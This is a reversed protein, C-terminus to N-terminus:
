WHGEWAWFPQPWPCRKPHNIKEVQSPKSEALHCEGPHTWPPTVSPFHDGAAPVKRCPNIGLSTWPFSTESVHGGRGGALADRGSNDRSHGMKATMLVLRKQRGVLVFSKLHLLPQLSPETLLSVHQWAQPDSSLELSGYPPLFSDDGM